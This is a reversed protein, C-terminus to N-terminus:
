EWSSGARRKKSGEIEAYQSSAATSQERRHVRSVQLRNMFPTLENEVSVLSQPNYALQREGWAARRARDHGIQLQCEALRNNWERQAERWRKQGEFRGLVLMPNRKAEQFIDRTENNSPDAERWKVDDYDNLDINTGRKRMWSLLTELDYFQGYEWEEPNTRDNKQIVRQLPYKLDRVNRNGTIETTGRNQELSVWHTRTNPVSM